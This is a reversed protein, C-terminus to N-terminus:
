CFSERFNIVDFHNLIKNKNVGLTKWSYWLSFLKYKLSIIITDFGRDVFLFASKKNFFMDVLTYWIHQWYFFISFWKSTILKLSLKQGHSWIFGVVALKDNALFL